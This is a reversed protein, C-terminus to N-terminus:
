PLGEQRPQMHGHGAAEQIQIPPAVSQARGRALTQGPQMPARPVCQATSRQSPGLLASPAAPPGMTVLVVGAPPLGQPEGWCLSPTQLAHLATSPEQQM